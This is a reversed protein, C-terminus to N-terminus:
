LRYSAILFPFEGPQAPYQGFNFSRFDKGFKFLRKWLSHFNHWMGCFREFLLISYGETEHPEAYSYELESLISLIM